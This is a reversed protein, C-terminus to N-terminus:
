DRERKRLSDTGSSDMAPTTTMKSPTHAERRGALTRTYDMASGASLIDNRVMLVLGTLSERFM